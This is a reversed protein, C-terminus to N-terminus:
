RAFVQPAIQGVTFRLGLDTDEDCIRVDGLFMQPTSVQLKNDVMWHFIRDLRQKTEKSDICSDVEPFRARVQARVLEKGAKGASTLETQNHYSWELIERSKAGGCLVAKALVCAGPHLPRDLMWNCENDLPFIAVSIDLREFVDETLLRDHFAKCTPCLPDVILLAPTTPRTTPIKLLAGNKETAQAIKGCSLLVPRYDPLANVYVVSPLLAFVGLGIMIIPFLLFSGTPLLGVDAPSEPTPVAYAPAPYGPPPNPRQQQAGFPVAEPVTDTASPVVKGGARIFAYVGSALLLSSSLYLGVCLKCFGDLKLLTITFMVCSALFPFVTAVAYAQWARKSAADRASVLYVAFALFFAYAGVAFVSIPIGGWFKDRLIASYPSYMAATCPNAGSSAETLGPIFSCHTNHLQRDLHLAFDHTSFGAFFVGLTSAVVGMLGPVLPRRVVM